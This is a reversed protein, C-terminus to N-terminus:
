RPKRLHAEYAALLRDRTSRVIANDPYRSAAQRVATKMTKIAREISTEDNPIDEIALVIANVSQAFAIAESAKQQTQNLETM